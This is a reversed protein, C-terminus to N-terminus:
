LDGLNTESISKWLRPPKGSDLEILYLEDNAQNISLAQEPTLDLLARLIMRNTNQHGVILIAGSAHQERISGIVARVRQFFQNLSEGGDLADDPNRVRKKYEIATVPDMAEVRQGEFKGLKREGLDALSKLPLQGRVIEATDRSRKLTSSYVADLRIGKLRDGLKVAQQRGTTNLETDTGGQLRREVNWDTEGHRALYMRLTAAPQGLVPQNTGSAFLFCLCFLGVALLRLEWARGYPCTRAFGTLYSGREGM